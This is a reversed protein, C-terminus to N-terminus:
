VASGYIFTTVIGCIDRLIPTNSQLLDKLGEFEKKSIPLYHKQKYGSDLNSIICYLRRILQQAMFKIPIIIENGSEEGWGYVLCTEWILKKSQFDYIAGLAEEDDDDYKIHKHTFVYRVDFANQICKSTANSQLYWALKKKIVIPKIPRRRSRNNKRVM